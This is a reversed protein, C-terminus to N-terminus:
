PGLAPSEEWNGLLLVIDNHTSSVRNIFQVEELGTGIAVAFQAM